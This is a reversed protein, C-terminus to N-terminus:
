KKPDSETAGDLKALESKARAVNDPDAHSLMKELTKRRDADTWVAQGGIHQRWKEVAARRGEVDAMFATVATESVRQARGDVDGAALGFSQGTMLNLAILAGEIDAEEDSTELIRLIQGQRAGAGDITTKFVGCAVMAERRVWPDADELLLDMVALMTPRGRHVQTEISGKRVFAGADVHLPALISDFAPDPTAQLNEAVTQRVTVDASQSLQKWRPLDAEDFQRNSALTQVAAVRVRVDENEDSALSWVLEKVDDHSVLGGLLRLVRERDSVLRMADYEDAPVPRAGSSALQVLGKRLRDEQDPPFVADSRLQRVSTLAILHDFLTLDEIWGLIPETVATPDVDKQLTHILAAAACRRDWVPAAPDRAIELLSRTDFFPDGALTQGVWVKQEEEGDPNAPVETARFAKLLDARSEKGLKRIEDRLRDNEELDGYSWEAVVKDVDSRLLERGHKWGYVLAGGLLLGTVIPIVWERLIGGKAESPTEHATERMPDTDGGPNLDGM